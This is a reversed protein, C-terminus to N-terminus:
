VSLGDEVKIFCQLKPGQSSLVSFYSSSQIEKTYLQPDYQIANTLFRISQSVNNIYKTSAEVTVSISCLDVRTINIFIFHLYAHM